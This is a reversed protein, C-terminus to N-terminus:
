LLVVPQRNAIDPHRIAITTIRSGFSSLPLLRRLDVGLLITQFMRSSLFLCLVCAFESIRHLSSM